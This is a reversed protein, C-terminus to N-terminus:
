LGRPPVDWLRASRLADRQEKLPARSLLGIMARAHSELLDRKLEPTPAKPSLMYWFDGLRSYGCLPYKRLPLDIAHTLFVLRDHEREKFFVYRAGLSKDPRHVLVVARDGRQLSALWEPDPKPIRARGSM